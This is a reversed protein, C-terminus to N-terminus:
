AQKAASVFRRVQAADKRGDREVGSRVDVADPHVAAIAAAVTDATLGGALIFFTSSAARLRAAARPDFSIGTGGRRGDCRSDALVAIAMGGRLQGPTAAPERALVITPKGFSGCYELPEDGSFQLVDLRCRDLASRVLDSPPDAFVGVTTVFPPVRAILASATSVSLRRPSDAFIFGLADVGALVCADIDEPYAVGCVKVRTM